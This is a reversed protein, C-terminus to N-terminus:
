ERARDTELWLDRHLSRAASLPALTGPAEGPQGLVETTGWIRWTLPDHSSDLTVPLGQPATSQAGLESGCWRRFMGGCTTAPNGSAGRTVGVHPQSHPVKPSERAVVDADM